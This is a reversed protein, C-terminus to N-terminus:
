LFTHYLSKISKYNLPNINIFFINEIAMIKNFLFKNFEKYSTLHLLHHIINM